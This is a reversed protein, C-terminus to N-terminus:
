FFHYFKFNLIFLINDRECEDIDQDCDKSTWGDTCQCVYGGFLDLCKAGNKCPNSACEDLDMLTKFLDVVKKMRKFGTVTKYVNDPKIKNDNLMQKIADKMEKVDDQLRDYNKLKDKLENFSQTLKSFLPQQNLTLQQQDNKYNNLLKLLDQIQIGNLKIQGFNTKFNIDKNHASEFTIHGDEILM